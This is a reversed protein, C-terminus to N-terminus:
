RKKNHDRAAAMLQIINGIGSGGPSGAYNPQGTAIAPQQQQQQNRQLLQMLMARAQGDDQQPPTSMPGAPNGAGQQPAFVKLGKAAEGLDIIAKGFHDSNVDKNLMMDAEAERRNQLGRLVQMNGNEDLAHVYDQMKDAAGQWDGAKIFPKIDQLAGNGLNHGFSLLAHYQNQSMKIDGFQSKIFSDVDKVDSAMRNNADEPTIAPDGMGARSGYGVSHIPNGHADYSDIFPTARFPGEFAKIHSYLASSPALESVSRPSRDLGRATDEKSIPSFNGITQALPSAYPPNAEFNYRGGRPEPTPPAYELGSKAALNPQQEEFNITTPLPMTTPSVRNAFDYGFAGNAMQPMAAVEEPSDKLWRTPNNFGKFGSAILLKLADLANGNYEDAMDNGVKSGHM